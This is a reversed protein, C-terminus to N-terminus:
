GDLALTELNPAATILAEFCTEDLHLAGTLKLERLNLWNVGLANFIITKSKYCGPSQHLRACSTVTKFVFVFQVCEGLVTLGSKKSM